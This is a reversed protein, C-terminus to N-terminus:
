SPARRPGLCLVRDDAHDAAVARYKEWFARDVARLAAPVQALRYRRFTAPGGNYASYTARAANEFRARAERVGYRVLLQFLIETGAGVNYATNWRLREPSFFGRWIRVNIQMMGVDGTSSNLYTVLGEQRVFQRWCSEQWAVAKVLHHFLDDFREEIADPDITREASLTLLRSVTTRYPGLQGETPVWRDLREALARWEDPTEAAHAPRPSFWHWGSPLRRRPRRPPADPDRFRFLQRLRADPIDSFEIPDGAYTPDLARALRRLGDASIELGAAPAAAELAALADGAALFIVSRLARSEDGKPTAARRVIVRLRDWTSLFLGRVPDTGPEPGRGLVALLEHRASLLLDLLEDQIAPDTSVGGLDKVVFVLFGDWNQLAAEWRKLRDPTLPPEPARPVPAAPPLDIAVVVKVADREVAVGVPRLTGLAASLPGGSASGSFLGLLAKVEEAPPGLDFTFTSLESEAWGKVLSWVRSAIGHQQRNLDYLQADLERLRLQWDRGIEPRGVIDVYGDWSVPALCFGFLSFGVRAAGRGSIRLRGDGPDVTPQRLVFSGCGDASRWLELEGGSQEHLHKGIASRLLPYDVTLPFKVEGAAAGTAMWVAVCITLAGLGVPGSARRRRRTM